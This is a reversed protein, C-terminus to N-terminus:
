LPNRVSECGQEAQEQSSAAVPRVTAVSTCDALLSFFRSSLVIRIDYPLTSSYKSSGAAHEKIRIGELVVPHMEAADFSEKRGKKKKLKKPESFNSCDFFASAMFFGMVRQIVTSKFKEFEAGEKADVQLRLIRKAVNFLLDIYGLAEHSGLKSADGDGEMVVDGEGNLCIRLIQNELFDIYKTWMQGIGQAYALEVSDDLLLLNSVTSTRTRGDFRPDTTLFTKAISLRRDLSEASSSDNLAENEVITELVHLALPKLMHSGKANGGACIVDLFLRKVINSSLIVNELLEHDVLIVFEGASSSNLQGGCAARVISLALARREHTPSSGDGDSGIALLSQTVLHQILAEAVKSGSEDSIPCSKCLTRVRGNEKTEETLFLWLVEWVVHMRPHVVSSTSSLADVLTPITASSVIAQNLPSPLEGNFFEDHRQISVAVAIQEANLSDVGKGAFLKPVIAKKFLQNLVIKSDDSDGSDYLSNMLTIIGHATPERMWKKHHFLDILDNVFGLSVEKIDTMDRGELPVLIGSRVVGLIGFLRGFQYDREESGKVKGFKGGQAQAPDTTKLLQNRVFELLTEDREEDKTAEKQIEKLAGTDNAIKLFSAFASAYGQRAAARGSCLGNLLRRFAYSADKSNASPGLLCHQLMAHASQAREAPSPSALGYFTDLFPIEGDNIASEPANEDKEDENMVEDESDDVQEDESEEQLSASRKKKAMTTPPTHYLIRSFLIFHSSFDITRTSPMESSPHVRFVLSVMVQYRCWRCRDRGISLVSPLSTMSRKKAM